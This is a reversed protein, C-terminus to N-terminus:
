VATWKSLVAGAAPLCDTTGAWPLSAGLLMGDFYRRGRRREENLLNQESHYTDRSANASAQGMMKNSVTGRIKSGHWKWM